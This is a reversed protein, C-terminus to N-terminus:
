NYAYIVIGPTMGQGDDLFCLMYGGRLSQDPVASLLWGCVWGFMKSKCDILLLMDQLVASCCLQVANM